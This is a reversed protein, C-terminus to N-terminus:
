VDALPTHTFTYSSEHITSLNSDQEDSSLEDATKEGEMEEIGDRRKQFLRRRGAIIKPTIEYLELDIELPDVTHTGYYDMLFPSDIKDANHELYQAVRHSVLIQGGFGADGVESAIQESAGMYLTKGTVPHVQVVLSGEENENTDHIGMRVRIGKFVAQPKLGIVWETKTAPVIGELEAPWKAHLLRLQVEFCYSVADEITHFALQFADGVTTIEYGGFQPLAYRLIDDHQDQAEEMVDEPAQAWLASSSEIDTFVFIPKEPATSAEFGVFSEVRRSARMRKWEPSEKVHTPLIPSLLRLCCQQSGGMILAQAAGFLYYLTTILGVLYDPVSDVSVWSLNMLAVQLLAYPLTFVSCVIMLLKLRRYLPSAVLKGHVHENKRGTCRLVIIAGVAYVVSLIIACTEIECLYILAKNYGRHYIVIPVSWGLFVISILAAGICYRQITARENESGRDLTAMALKFLERTVLFIWYATLLLLLNDAMLFFTLTNSLPQSTLILKALYAAEGGDGNDDAALLAIVAADASSEESISLSGHDYEDLYKTMTSALSAYLLVGAFAKLSSFILFSSIVFRVTSRWIDGGLKRMHYGALLTTCFSVLLAALYVYLWITNTSTLKQTLLQPPLGENSASDGAM